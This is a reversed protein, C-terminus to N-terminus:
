KVGAFFKHDGIVATLVAPPKMWNREIERRAYGTAGATPDGARGDLVDTLALLCNRYSVPDFRAPPRGHEPDGTLHALEAELTDANPDGSNWCSFQWPHRCVAEISPGGWWWPAGDAKRTRARNVLVWAIATKGAYDLGRGEGYITLAGIVLDRASAVVGIIAM